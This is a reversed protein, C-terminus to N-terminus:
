GMSKSMLTQTFDFLQIHRSGHSVGWPKAEEAGRMGKRLMHPSGDRFSLLVSLEPQRALANIEPIPVPIVFILGPSVRHTYSCKGCSHSSGLETELM